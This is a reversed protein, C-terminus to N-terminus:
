GLPCQVYPGPTFEALNSDEFYLVRAGALDSALNEAGSGLLVASLEGGSSEALQRGAALMVYSIESVNGRLHEIVVYIDNSM